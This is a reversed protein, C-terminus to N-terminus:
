ISYLILPIKKFAKSENAMKSNNQKQRTTYLFWYPLIRYETCPKYYLQSFSVSKIIKGIADNTVQRAADKNTM